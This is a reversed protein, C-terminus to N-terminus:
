FFLQLVRILLATLVGGVKIKSPIHHCKADIIIRTVILGNQIDGTILKGIM